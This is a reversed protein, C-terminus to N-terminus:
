PLPAPETEPEDPHSRSRSRRWWAVCRVSIEVTAALVAPVLGAVLLVGAPKARDAVRERCPRANNAEAEAPTIGQPPDTESVLQNVRGDLLFGLSTGCDQTPTSVPLLLIGLGLLAVVLGITAILATARLLGQPAPREPAAPPAPAPDTTSTTM